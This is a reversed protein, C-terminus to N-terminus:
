WEKLTSIMKGFFDGPLAVGWPQLPILSVSNFIDIREEIKIGELLFYKYFKIAQKEICDCFITSAEDPNKIIATITLGKIIDEVKYPSSFGKMAGARMRGDTMFEDVWPKIVSIISDKVPICRTCCDIESDLYLNNTRSNLHLNHSARFKKLM